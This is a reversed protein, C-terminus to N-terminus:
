KKFEADDLKELFKHEVNESELFTKGDHLVVTKKPYPVGNNDKAYEKIVRSETV